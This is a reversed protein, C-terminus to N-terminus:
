QTTKIKAILDKVPINNDVVDHNTELTFGHKTAIGNKIIYKGQAEGSILFVTGTLKSEGMKLFLIIEEGKTLTVADTLKLELDGVKGGEYEVVIDKNGVSGALVENVKVTARTVVTGKSWHCSAKEVKGAIIVESSKVLESTSIGHVAFATQSLIMSLCVFGLLLLRMKLLGRMTTRVKSM